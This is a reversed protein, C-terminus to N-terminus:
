LLNAGVKDAMVGGKACYPTSCSLCFLRSMLYLETCNYFSM